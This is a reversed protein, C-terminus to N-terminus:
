LVRGFVREALGDGRGLLRRAVEPLPECAALDDVLLAPRHHHIV